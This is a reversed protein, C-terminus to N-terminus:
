EHEIDMRENMEQRAIEGDEWLQYLREEEWLRQWDENTMPQPEFRNDM